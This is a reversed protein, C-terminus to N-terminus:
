QADFSLVPMLLLKQLADLIDWRSIDYVSELVWLMELVVPLPVFLKQQERETQRFLERVIRALKDDDAVLFRILVNRDPAKM